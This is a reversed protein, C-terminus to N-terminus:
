IKEILKIKDPIQSKDITIEYDTFNRAPVDKEKKEIKILDFLRYAPANGICDSHEFVYLKRASM